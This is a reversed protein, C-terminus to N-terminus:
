RFMEQEKDDFALIPYINEHSEGGQGKDSFIKWLEDQSLTGKAKADIAYATRPAFKQAGYHAMLQDSVGSRRHRM